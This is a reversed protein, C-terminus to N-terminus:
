KAAVALVWFGHVGVGNVTGFPEFDQPAWRSVHREHKRGFVAGEVGSTPSM